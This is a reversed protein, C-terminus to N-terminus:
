GITITAEDLAGRYFDFTGGGHAGISLPATNSIAGISANLVTASGDVVAQIQTSTKVCKLTHYGTNPLLTTTSIVEKAGSTGRFGCALAGSQLIEMKFQQAPSDGKRIVDYDGSSPLTSPDASISVTVDATGPNLSSDDPVSVYGRTFGYGTTGDVGPVGVTVNSLAGDNAPPAGSDLMTAGSTENMTWLGVTSPTFSEQFLNLNDVEFSDGAAASKERVAMSLSDHGNTLSTTATALPTWGSQSKTCSATQRVQSGGSSYETLFVCVSRGPTDSRVMGTATYQAGATGNTVPRPVARLGFTAAVNNTAKAAWNGAFADSAVSLVSGVAAWGTTTDAEFDGNVLLNTGPSTSATGAWAPAAIVLLAVVLWPGAFLPLAAARKM